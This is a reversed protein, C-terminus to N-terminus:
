TGGPPLPLPALRTVVAHKPGLGLISAVRNAPHTPDNDDDNPLFHGYFNISTRGSPAIAHELAHRTLKEELGQGECDPHITVAFDIRNLNEKLPLSAMAVGVIQEDVEAVWRHTEYYDSPALMARREEITSVSSYGYLKVGCASHLANLQEMDRDSSINIPRIVPQAMDTYRTKMMVLM